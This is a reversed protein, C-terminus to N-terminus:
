APREPPVVARLTVTLRWLVGVLVVNLTALTGLMALTADAGGAQLSLAGAFPAIAMAILLPLALRGMLVPYRAPGFLALPL